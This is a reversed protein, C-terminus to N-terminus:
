GKLGDMAKQADDRQDKLRQWQTSLKQKHEGLEAIRQTLQQADGEVSALGQLEDARKVLLEVPREADRAEEQVRRASRVQAELEEVRTAADTQDQLRQLLDAKVQGHQRRDDSSQ